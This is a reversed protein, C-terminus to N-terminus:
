VPKGSRASEISKGVMPSGKAVMFEITYRRDSDSQHLPPIREPLLWRQTTIMYCFGLLAVAASFLRM